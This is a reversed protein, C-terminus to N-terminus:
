RTAPSRPSRPRTRWSTDTGSASLRATPSPLQEQGHAYPNAIAVDAREEALVELVDAADWDLGIRKVEVDFGDFDVASYVVVDTIGRARLGPLIRALKYEGFIVAKAM